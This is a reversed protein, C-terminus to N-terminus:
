GLSIEPAVLSISGTVTVRVKLIDRLERGQAEPDTIIMRDFYKEWGAILDKVQEDTAIPRAMENLDNRWNNM